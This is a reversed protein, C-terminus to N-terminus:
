LNGKKNLYHPSAEADVTCYLCPWRSTANYYGKVLYTAKWDSCSYIQINFKIETSSNFSTESVIKQDPEYFIEKLKKIESYIHPLWCKIGEYSEKAKFIGIRYSGNVSAALKKENIISFALNVIKVNGSIKTGDFALKLDICKNTNTLYDKNLYILIRNKIFKIPDVCYGGGLGTLTIAKSYEARCKKILYISPTKDKISWGARLLHYTEDSIMAIDKFYLIRQVDDLYSRYQDCYKIQFDQIVEEENENKVIEVNNLSYGLMILDNNLLSLINKIKDKFYRNMERKKKKMEDMLKYSNICEKAQKLELKTRELETKLILKEKTLKLLMQTHSSSERNAINIQQEDYFGM